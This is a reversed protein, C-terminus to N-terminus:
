TMTITNVSWHLKTTSTMEMFVHGERVKATSFASVALVKDSSGELWDTHM